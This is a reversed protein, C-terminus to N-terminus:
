QSAGEWGPTQEFGFNEVQGLPIGLLIRINTYAQALVTVKQAKQAEGHATMVEVARGTRLLDFWRHNEFALERRRENAITQALDALEGPSLSPDPLARTRIQELIAVPDGGGVEQYCEALMLLADAYRFMPFNVDQLGQVPFGFDFKSMWPEVSTSDEYFSINHQFRADTTDYVNILSQTPQNQGARPNAPGSDGLIDNGSNFPVFRSMFDSGQGLAVSHQIEFVSESHNKNAPDFVSRYDPLLTYGLGQMQELLPIAENFQQLAMHMKAKLMLAAGANARGSAIESPNPLLDIAEQIDALINEYVQAVPTRELFEDSLIEDPSNGASTVYPVDGWLQALNFYFWSRLFLIEGRRINRTAENAFTVGDLNELAFNARSIGSYAANWYGGIVPNAASMLFLDVEESDSGGRDAPNYQFSTNDSRNEGFRWHSNNVLQRNINYIATVAENLQQENTFFGQPTQFTRPPEDLFEECGSFLMLAVLYLIYKNM